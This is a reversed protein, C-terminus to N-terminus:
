HAFLKSNSTIFRDILLLFSSALFIVAISVPLSGMRSFVNMFNEDVAKGHFQLREHLWGMDGGGANSTGVVVAVMILVFLILVVWFGKGLIRENKIKVFTSGEEFIGAMVRSSFDPSPSDLEMKHLLASLKIDELENM